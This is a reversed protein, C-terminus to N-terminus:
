NVMTKFIHIFRGSKSYELEPFEYLFFLKLFELKGHYKFEMLFKRAFIFVIKEFFKLEHFKLVM